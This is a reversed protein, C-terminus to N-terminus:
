YGLEDVVHNIFNIFGSVAPYKLKNDEDKLHEYRLLQNRLEELSATHSSDLDHRRVAVAPQYDGFEDELISQLYEYEKIKPIGRDPTPDPYEFLVIELEEKIIQKLQEKTIKM